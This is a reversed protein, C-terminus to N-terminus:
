KKGGKEFGEKIAQNSLRIEKELIELGKKLEHNTMMHILEEFTKEGFGTCKDLCTENWNDMACGLTDIFEDKNQNNPVEFAVIIEKM